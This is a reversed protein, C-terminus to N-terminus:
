TLAGTTGSEFREEEFFKQILHVSHDSIEKVSEAARGISPRDRSDAEVLLLAIRINNSGLIVILQSMDGMLRNIREVPKYFYLALLDAIGLTVPLVIAVWDTLEQSGPVSTLWAPALILVLGLVFLVVVLSVLIWYSKGLRENLRQMEARGDQLILNMYDVLEKNADASQSSTLAADTLDSEQQVFAHHNELKSLDKVSM